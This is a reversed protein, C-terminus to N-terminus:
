PANNLTKIVTSIRAEVSGSLRAYPIARANLAGEYWKQQELRFTAEQRTGDQVFDFDADCLFVFDYATDALRKLEDDVKGFMAQSYFMTTLPSTDCFLWKDADQMKQKQHELQTQAIILMDEFKLQGGREEWLTRGYETVYQTNMREALGKALTSKGTSEGGLFLVTKVFSRYVVPSLYHRNEFPAHRIATGSIPVHSRKLDLCHHTVNHLKGTAKTVYDGLADAFGDGYTESTFVVDPTHGLIDHCLWATFERHIKESADDHPLSPWGHSNEHRLWANDVVLAVANPFLANLWQRRNDSACNPHSPNAYSIIVLTDCAAQATEILYEHGKHLPCFKGVILGTKYKM